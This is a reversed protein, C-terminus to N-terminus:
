RLEVQEAATDSSASTVTSKEQEGDKGGELDMKIDKGDEKEDGEGESEAAKAGAGAAVSPASSSSKMLANEVGQAFGTRDEMGLGMVNGQGNEIPISGWGVSLGLGGDGEEGTGASEGTGDDVFPSPKADPLVWRKSEGHSLRVKDDRVELLASVAMMEKIISVDPTLSKIRNFSSIMAIDIWGESDMQFYARRGADGLSLSVQQRLFFDMALNQM